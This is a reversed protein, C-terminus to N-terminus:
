AREQWPKVFTVLPLRALASDLAKRDAVIRDPSYVVLVDARGSEIFDLADREGALVMDAEKTGEEHTLGTDQFQGVVTFGRAECLVRCAEAQAELFPDDPRSARCYVVARIHRQKARQVPPKPEAAKKAAEAEADRVAKMEDVEQALVGIQAVLAAGEEFSRAKGVQIALEYMQREQEIPSEIEWLSAYEVRTLRKALEEPMGQWMSRSPGSETFQVIVDIDGAELRDRVVYYPHRSHYLWMLKIPEPLLRFTMQLEVNEPPQQTARYVQLVKYGMRECYARCAREQVDLSQVKPEGFKAVLAPSLNHYTHIYIAAKTM